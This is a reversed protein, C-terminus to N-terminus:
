VIKERGNDIAKQLAELEYEKLELEGRFYKYIKTEPLGSLRILERINYIKTKM